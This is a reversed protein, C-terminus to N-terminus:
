QLAVDVQQQHDKHDDARRNPGLDARAEGAAEVGTTHPAPEGQQGEHADDDDHALEDARNLVTALQRAQGTVTNKVCIIYEPGGGPTNHSVIGRMFAIETGDPSWAARFDSANPLGWARIGSSSLRLLESLRRQTSNSGVFCSAVQVFPM